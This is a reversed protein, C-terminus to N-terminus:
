VPTLSVANTKVGIFPWRLVRSVDPNVALGSLM